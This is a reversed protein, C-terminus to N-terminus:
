PRHPTQHTGWFLCVTVSAFFPKQKNAVKKKNKRFMFWTEEILINVINKKSTKM